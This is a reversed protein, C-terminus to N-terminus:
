DVGNGLLHGSASAGALLSATLLAAAVAVSAVLRAHDMFSDAPMAEHWSGRSQPNEAGALYAVWRLRRGSSSVDDVAALLAGLYIDLPAAPYRTSISLKHANVRAGNELPAPSSYPAVIPHDTHPSMLAPPPAQRSMTRRARIEVNAGFKWQLTAISSTRFEYLEPLDLEYLYM